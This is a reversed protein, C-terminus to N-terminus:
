RQETAAQSVLSPQLSRSYYSADPRQSTPYIYVIAFALSVLAAAFSWVVTQEEVMEKINPPRDISQKESEVVDTKDDPSADAKRVIRVREHCRGCWWGGSLAARSAVTQMAHGPIHMARLQLWVLATLALRVAFPQSNTHRFTPFALVMM